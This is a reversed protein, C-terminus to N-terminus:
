ALGRTLLEELRHRWTHEALTRTRARAGMARSGAPDALMAEARARLEPVSAFLAIERDPEYSVPIDAKADVLQPAGLAALEFVRQNAGTGYWGREAPEGFFQHVNLAVTARGYARRLAAGFLPGRPRRPGWIEVGLDALAALMADRHEEPSGVFVIPLAPGSAPMPAWFEPDVGLPLFDAARGLARHRDVMYRDFLFSRDYGAGIELSLDLHHPSDPFWNFWRARSGARAAAIGAPMLEAAKYSLVVDARHGRVAGALRGPLSAGLLRALGRERVEVRRVECGLQARGAAIGLGPQHYRRNFKAVLVVRLGAFPSSM